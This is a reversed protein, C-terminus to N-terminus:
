WGRGPMEEVEFPERIERKVRSFELHGVLDLEFTGKELVSDFAM